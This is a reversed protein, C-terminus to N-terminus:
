RLYGVKCSASDACHFADPSIVARVVQVDRVADKSFKRAQRGAKLFFISM